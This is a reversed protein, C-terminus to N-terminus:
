RVHLDQLLAKAITEAVDLPVNSYFHRQEIRKPALGSSVTLAREALLPLSLDADVVFYSPDRDTARQWLLVNRKGHLELFQGVSRDLTVWSGDECLQRFVHRGHLDIQYLGPQREGVPLWKLTTPDFRQADDLLPEPALELTVQDLRPMARVLQTAPNVVVRARLTTAVTDVVELSACKAYKAAPWGFPQEIEFPYVTLHDTADEFRQDLYHPRSGTLVVCLGLGPVVNLAPPAVSWTRTTWDIDLHGLAALNNALRWPRIQVRHKQALFACVDRLKDWNGSGVESVWRLLEKGATNTM